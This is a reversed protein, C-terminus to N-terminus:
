LQTGGCRTGIKMRGFENDNYIEHVEVKINLKETLEQNLKSNRKWNKKKICSQIRISCTMKNSKLFTQEEAFHVNMEKFEQASKCNYEMRKPWNHKDNENM